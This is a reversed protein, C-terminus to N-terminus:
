LVFYKCVNRQLQAFEFEFESGASLSCFSHLYKGLVWGFCVSTTYQAQQMSPFPCPFVRPFQSFRFYVNSIRMDWNCSTKGKKLDPNLSFLPDCCVWGAFQVPWLNWRM